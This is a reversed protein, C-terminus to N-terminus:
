HYDILEVDLANGDEFKFIIRWNARVTVAWYRKMDGKLQHLRHAPYISLRRRRRRTLFRSSERWTIWCTQGSEM